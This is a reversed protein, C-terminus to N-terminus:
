RAPLGHVPACTRSGQGTVHLSHVAAAVLVWVGFILLLDMEAVSLSWGKLGSYLYMQGLSDKGESFMKDANTFRSLLAVPIRSERPRAQGAQVIPWVADMLWRYAEARSSLLGELARGYCAERYDAAALALAVDISPVEGLGVIRSYNLLAELESIASFANIRELDAKALGFIICPLDGPALTLAPAQFTKVSLNQGVYGISGGSDFIQLGVPPEIGPENLNILISLSDPGLYPRESLGAPCYSGPGMAVAEKGQFLYRNLIGYARALDRSYEEPPTGDRQYIWLAGNHRYAAEIETIMAWPSLLWIGPLFRGNLNYGDWIELYHDVGEPGDIVYKRYTGEYWASVFATSCNFGRLMNWYFWSDVFGMIGLDLRPNIAHVAEALDKALLYAREGQWEHFAELLDNSKLYGHIQGSPLPPMSLDRHRLFAALSANDYTYERPQYGASYYLEMDWVIGTIPYHLSLNAIHLGPEKMMHLWWAEDIPSPTYEEERGYRDVARSYNFDIYQWSPQQYYQGAIFAVNNAAALVSESGLRDEHFGPVVKEWTWDAPSYFADIGLSGLQTFNWPGDVAFNWPKYVAIKFPFDNALVPALLLTGVALTMVWGSDRPM